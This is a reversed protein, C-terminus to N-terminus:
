KDDRSKVDLYNCWVFTACCSALLMNILILFSFGGIIIEFIGAAISIIACVTAIVGLIFYYKAKAM